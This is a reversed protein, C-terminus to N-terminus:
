RVQTSMPNTRGRSSSGPWLLELEVAVDVPEADTAGGNGDADLLTADGLELVDAAILTLHRPTRTSVNIPAATSRPNAPSHYTLLPLLSTNQLPTAKPRRM